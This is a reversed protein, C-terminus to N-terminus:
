SGPHPWAASDAAMNESCSVLGVHLQVFWLVLAPADGPLWKVGLVLIVHTQPLDFSWVDQAAHVDISLMNM